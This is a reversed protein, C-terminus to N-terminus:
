ARRRFLRSISSVIFGILAGLAAMIAFVFARKGVPESAITTTPDLFTPLCAYATVVAGTLWGPVALVIERRSRAVRGAVAGIPMGFLGGVWAGLLASSLALAGFMEVGTVGSATFVVVAYHLPTLTFLAVFSVFAVSGLLSGVLCGRVWYPLRGFLNMTRNDRRPERLRALDTV